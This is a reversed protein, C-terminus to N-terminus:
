QILERDSYLRKCVPALYRDRGQPSNQTLLAKIDVDSHWRMLKFQVKQRRALELDGRIRAGNHYWYRIKTIIEDMEGLFVMPAHLETLRGGCRRENGRDDIRELTMRQTGSLLYRWKPQDSSDLKEVLREDRIVFYVTELEPIAGLVNAFGANKFRRPMSRGPGALDSTEIRREFDALSFNLELVVRRIGGFAEREQPGTLSPLLPLTDHDLVDLRGKFHFPEWDNDVRAGHPKFHLGGRNFMLGRMDHRDVFKLYVADTATNIVVSTQDPQLMTMGTKGLEFHAIRRATVSATSLWQRAHYGSPAPLTEGISVRGVHKAWWEFTILRLTQFPAPKFETPIQDDMHGPFVIFSQLMPKHVAEKFVIQQLEAPLRSFLDFTSLNAEPSDGSPCSKAADM